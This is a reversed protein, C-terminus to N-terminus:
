LEIHHDIISEQNNDNGSEFLNKDFVITTNETDSIYGPEGFFHTPTIISPQVAYTIV